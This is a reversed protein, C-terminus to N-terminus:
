RRRGLYIILIIIGICLVGAVVLTGIAWEPLVELGLIVELM